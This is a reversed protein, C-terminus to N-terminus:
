IRSTFLFDSPYPQFLADLLVWQIRTLIPFMFLLPAGEFTDLGSGQFRLTVKPYKSLGDKFGQLM